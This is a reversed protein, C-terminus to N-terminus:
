TLLINKESIIISVLDKFKKNNKSDIYLNDLKEQIGYYENNRLLQRKENKMEM